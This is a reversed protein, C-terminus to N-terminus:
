PFIHSRESIQATYQCDKIQSGSHEARQWDWHTAAMRTEPDVTPTTLLHGVQCLALQPIGDEAKGRAKM